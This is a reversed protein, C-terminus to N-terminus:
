NFLNRLGFGFWIEGQTNVFSNYKLDKEVRQGMAGSAAIVKKIVVDAYKYQFLWM